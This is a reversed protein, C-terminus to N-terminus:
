MFNNNKAVKYGVNEYFCSNERWEARSFQKWFVNLRANQLNPVQIKRACIRPLVNVGAGEYRKVM